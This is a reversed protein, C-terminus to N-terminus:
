KTVNGQAYLGKTEYNKVLFEDAEMMDMVAYRSVSCIAMEDLADVLNQYIADKTPKITAVAGLKDKKIEKMTTNYEEDSLQKAKKKKNLNNVQQVIQKNKQLVVNRLQTYNIEKLSTYDDYNPLGEYYYVKNNEALIFTIARSDPTDPPTDIPIDKTPMAIDMVQPRSLTTCFMFFTLLLMMMDVMPTFDVRTNTRKKGNKPRRIKRKTIM